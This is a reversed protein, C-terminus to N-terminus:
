FQVMDATSGTVRGGGWVTARSGTRRADGALTSGCFTGLRHAWESQRWKGRKEAGTM